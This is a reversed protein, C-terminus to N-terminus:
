KKEKEFGCIRVSFRGVCIEASKILDSRNKERLGSLGCLKKKAIKLNKAHSHATSVTTWGALDDM